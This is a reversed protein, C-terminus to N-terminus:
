WVEQLWTSWTVSTLGSAWAGPHRWRPLVDTFAHACGSLSAGCAQPTPCLPPYTPYVALSKVLLEDDPSQKGATATESGERGGFGCSDATRDSNISARSRLFIGFMLINLPLECGSRDWFIASRRPRSSPFTTVLFNLLWSVHHTISAAGAANFSRLRHIHTCINYGLLTYKPLFTTDRGFKYDVRAEPNMSAVQPPPSPTIIGSYCLWMLQRFGCCSYHRIVCRVWCVATKAM